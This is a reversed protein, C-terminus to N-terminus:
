MALILAVGHDLGGYVRFFGRNPLTDPFCFYTVTIPKYGHSNLIIMEDDRDDSTFGGNYKDIIEIAHNPVWLKKEEETVRCYKTKEVVHITIPILLYRNSDMHYAFFTLVYIGNVYGATNVDEAM